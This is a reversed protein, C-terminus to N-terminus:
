SLLKCKPYKKLSQKYSVAIAQKVSKYKGKKYEKINVKIKNKLYTNCAQETKNAKRWIEKNQYKSLKYLTGKKTKYKKRNTNKKLTKKEM